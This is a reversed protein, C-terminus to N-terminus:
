CRFAGNIGSIVPAHAQAGAADTVTVTAGVVVAGKPDTVTGTIMGGAASAAAAFALSLTVAFLTALLLRNGTLM